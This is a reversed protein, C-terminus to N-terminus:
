TYILEALVFEDAINQAQTWLQIREMTDETPIPHAKFWDTQLREVRDFATQDIQKCHEALKGTLLLERFMEPKQEHLYRLRLMGYKGLDNEINEMGAEINPYLLGDIEVYELEIM